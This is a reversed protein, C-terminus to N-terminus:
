AVSQAPSVPSSIAVSTLLTSPLLPAINNMRFVYLQQSNINAVSLFLSDESLLLVLSSQCESRVSVDSSAFGSASHFARWILRKTESHITADSPESSKLIIKQYTSGHLIITSRRKLPVHRRWWCPHTLRARFSRPSIHTWHVPNALRSHSVIPWSHPCHCTPPRDLTFLCLYLSIPYFEARQLAETPAPITGIHSQPSVVPRVSPSLQGSFSLHFLESRPRPTEVYKLPTSLHNWEDRIISAVRVESVDTSLLKVRCYMGSSLESCWVRLRSFKFDWM